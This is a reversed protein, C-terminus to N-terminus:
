ETWDSPFLYIYDAVFCLNDDDDLMVGQHYLSDLLYSIEVYDNAEIADALRKVLEPVIGYSWCSENENLFKRWQKKM